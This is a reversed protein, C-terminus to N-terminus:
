PLIDFTSFNKIPAKNISIHSISSHSPCNKCWKIFKQINDKTGEAEIILKGIGVNMVFGAIGIKIAKHLALFRFGVRNVKGHITINVHVTSNSEM